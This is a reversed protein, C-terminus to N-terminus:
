YKYYECVWEIALYSSVRPCSVIVPLMMALPRNPTMQAPSYRCWGTAMLTHHLVTSM